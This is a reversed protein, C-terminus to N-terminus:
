CEWGLGGSSFLITKHGLSKADKPDMDGEGEGKYKPLQNVGGSM